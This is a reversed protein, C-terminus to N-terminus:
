HLIGSLNLVLDAGEILPYLPHDKGALYAETLACLSDPVVPDHVLTELLTDPTARRDLLLVYLHKLTPQNIYRLRMRLLYDDRAYERLYADKNKLMSQLLDYDHESLVRMTQVLPFQVHTFGLDSLRPALDRITAYSMNFAHFITNM